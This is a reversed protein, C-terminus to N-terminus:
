LPLHEKVTHMTAIATQIDRNLDTVHVHHAEAELALARGLAEPLQEETACEVMILTDKGDDRRQWPNIVTVFM